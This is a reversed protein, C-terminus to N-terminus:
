NSQAPNIRGYFVCYYTIKVWVRANTSSSLDANQFHLVWTWAYPNIPNDGVAAGWEDKDNRVSARSEGMVGATTAYRSLVRSPSQQQIFMYTCGRAEMVQDIVTEAPNTLNPFARIALIANANGTNVIVRASIKSAAVYYNTYLGALQNFGRPQHGAGTLDPDYLSNGRYQQYGLSTTTTIGFYDVYQLKCKLMAPWTVGPFSRITLKNTDVARRQFRRPRRKFTNRRSRVRPVYRSRTPRRTRFTRRSRPLTPM